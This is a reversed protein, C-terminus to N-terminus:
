KSNSDLKIVVNCIVRFKQVLKEYEQLSHKGEIIELKLLEEKLAIWDNRGTSNVPVGKDKLYEFIKIKENLTFGTSEKNSSAKEFSVAGGNNSEIKVIIQILKKLRRTINDAIPFDQFTSENEAKCFSFKPDLRMQQYNAYGYKYTGRLLDVDHIRSWWVAPRQGFLAENPIFNLLNEWNDYLKNIKVLDTDNGILQCKIRIEKNKKKEIKFKEILFNVRCILQIRKGWASTRDKFMSGWDDKKSVVFPENKKREILEELFRKLESKELPLLECITKLFCNTFIRLEAIPKDNLIGGSSKQIQIWKGYGYIMIYKRLCDKEHITWSNSLQLDPLEDQNGVGGIFANEDEINEQKNNVAEKGLNEPIKSDSLNPIIIIYSHSSNFCPFTIREYCNIRLPESEFTLLKNNVFCNELAKFYLYNDDYNYYLIAHLYSMCNCDNIELRKDIDCNLSKMLMVSNFIIERNLEMSNEQCIDSLKGGILCPIVTLNIRNNIDFVDILQGYFSDKGDNQNITKFYRYIDITNNQINNNAFNSISQSNVISNNNSLSISNNNIVSNSNEEILM